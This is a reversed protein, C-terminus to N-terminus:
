ANDINIAVKSYRYVTSSGAPRIELWALPVAAGCVSVGASPDTGVGVTGGGTPDPVVPADPTRKTCIEVALQSTRLVSVQLTALEAVLQSVRLDASADQSAVEVPLQTVLTDTM